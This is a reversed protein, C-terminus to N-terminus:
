PPPKKLLAEAEARLTNLQTQQTQSLPRLEEQHVRLARDYAEKAKTPAGQQHHCMALVFGNVSVHKGPALKQAQALAKLAADLEKLRYHALGLTNWYAAEKPADRTAQKAMVMALNPDRMLRSPSTLLYRAIDDAEKPKGASVKLYDELARDKQGAGLYARARCARLEVRDPALEIARSHDTVAKDGQGLREHAQARLHHAEADEPYLSIVQSYGSVVKQWPPRKTDLRNAEDFDRKANSYKRLQAYLLGRELYAQAKLEKSDAPPEGLLVKVRLPGTAEQGEGQSVARFAWDWDLGVG